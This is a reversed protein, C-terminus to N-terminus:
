GHRQGARADPQEANRPLALAQLVDKNFDGPLPAALTGSPQYEGSNLKYRVTGTVTDHSVTVATQPGQLTIEYNLDIVHSVNQSNVMINQLFAAEAVWVATVTYSGTEPTVPTEATFPSGDSKQWGMFRYDTKQPEAPLADIAAAPFTVSKTSPNAETTAGDGDFTVTYVNADWQAFIEGSGTVPTDPTLSIGGGSQETNWGTFTYGRDQPIAPANGGFSQGAIIAQTFNSGHGNLNFTVTYGTITWDADTKGTKPIGTVYQADSTYELSGKKIAAKLWVEQPTGTVFLNYGLASVGSIAGELPTQCNSDSYAQVKTAYFGDLDQLTLTGAVRVSSAFSAAAYNDAITTTRNQYIHMAKEDGATESGKVLTTKVRYYGADLTM